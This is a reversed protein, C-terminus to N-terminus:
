AAAVGILARAEAPGAITRGAERALQVLAEVLEGNSRARAGQPLYFTDELGTRLHGGLEAARRHLPWVEDRGIAIVQWLTDSNMEDVLLPLFEPRAPM